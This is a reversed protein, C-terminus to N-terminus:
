FSVEEFYEPWQAKTKGPEDSEVPSKSKKARKGQIDSCGVDKRKQAISHSSSPVSHM